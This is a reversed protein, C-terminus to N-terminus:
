RGEPEFEVTSAPRPRKATNSILRVALRIAPSLKVQMCQVTWGQDIKRVKEILLVYFEADPANLPNIM